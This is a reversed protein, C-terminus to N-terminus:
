NNQVHWMIRVVYTQLITQLVKEFIKHENQLYGKYNSHIWKEAIEFALQQAGQHGTSDLGQIVISQLPPWANPFDWQENTDILSAPIGGPFANLNLQRM